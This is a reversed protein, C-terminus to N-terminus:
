AYRICLMPYAKKLDIRIYPFAKGDKLLINYFPQIKHILNSELNLAELESNTLTYEFDYVHNVMQSVKEPKKTDVFYSSVRRKLNVAKGVYIINNNIDLMRYVGPTQPLTSLKEKIRHLVEKDM